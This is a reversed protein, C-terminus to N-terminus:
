KANQVCRFGAHNQASTVEGKGRSGVIYRMCYNDACLFSGGRQVRKAVGPEMPDSGSLPGKPNREPSDEYYKFQYWDACWEWANGAMDHLGYGNAPFSGVPATGEFGDEKSNELPFNGQWVNAMWKGDPKLEDGWPFKKRNLGGRAAFEWEAETPLRKGAWQCYAAADNYSIHVVPHNERGKTSSSPGEPHKWCAGYRIDWWGLHRELDYEGPAPTKFVISFPKLGKLPVKPFDKPDPQKEADTVYGTKSVFVAYQENIVEYKDMWFGDMYVLHVEEADPIEEDGMYFEGGPIWVMGQPAPGPPARANLIPERFEIEKGSALKIRGRHLLRDGYLTGLTGAVVFAIALTIAGTIKLVRNLKKLAVQRPSLTIDTTAPQNAPPAAAQHKPKM